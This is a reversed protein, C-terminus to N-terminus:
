HGALAQIREVLRYVHSGPRSPWRDAPVTDLAKARQIAEAVHPRFRTMDLRAKNYAGLLRRLSTEVTSCTPAGVFAPLDALHFHLWVEFCPHSVAVQFGKARSETCVRKLKAPKWRDVDIVLWREDDEHLDFEAEFAALRKLVQAPDSRADETALVRIQVRSLRLDAVLAEFYQKETKEGETAIVILRTDRLTPTSRDLPRRRRTTPM